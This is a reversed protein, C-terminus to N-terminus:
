VRKPPLPFFASTTKQYHRYADGKRLVASAETPPIGTVKVLLYIIIIPAHLSTWGWPSGCAFLFFGVWIVSEFFYNPHRSYNWLGDRCVARSDSNKQKFRRMQRDALSEGAFGLLWTSLGLVHWVSWQLSEDIAVWFFPMALLIVSLGQGMFFMFFKGSVRDAWHERLRVYRADEQPFHKHLRRQLHWALRGGWMCAMAASLWAIWGHNLSILMVAALLSIGAAWAVDVLSYFDLRYAILWALTFFVGVGGALLLFWFADSM